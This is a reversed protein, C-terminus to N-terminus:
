IEEQEFPPLNVESLGYAKTVQMVTKRLEGLAVPLCEREVMDQGLEKEAEIEDAEFVSTTALRLFIREDETGMHFILNIFIRKDDNMDTPILMNGDVSIGASKTKEKEPKEHFAAEMVQHKKLTFKMDM